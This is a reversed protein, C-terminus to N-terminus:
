NMTYSSDIYTAVYIYMHYGVLGFRNEHSSRDLLVLWRMQAYM